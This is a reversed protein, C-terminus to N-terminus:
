LSPVALLWARGKGGGGKRRKLYANYTISHAQKLCQLLVVSVNPVTQASGMKLKRAEARQKVSADYSQLLYTVVGLM